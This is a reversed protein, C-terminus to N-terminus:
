AVALDFFVGYGWVFEAHAGVLKGIEGTTVAGFVGLCQALDKIVSCWSCVAVRNGRVGAGHEVEGAM